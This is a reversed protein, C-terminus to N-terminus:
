EWVAGYKNVGETFVDLMTSNPDLGVMCKDLFILKDKFKGSAILDKV